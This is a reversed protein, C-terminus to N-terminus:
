GPHAREFRVVRAHNGASLATRHCYRPDEFQQLAETHAGGECHRAVRGVRVRAEDLADVGGTVLDRMTALLVFVGRGKVFRAFSV